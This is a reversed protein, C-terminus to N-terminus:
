PDLFSNHNKQNGSSWVIINRSTPFCYSIKKTTTTPPSSSRLLTATKRKTKTLNKIQMLRKPCDFSQTLYIRQKTRNADSLNNAVQGLSPHSLRIQEQEWRDTCVSLSVGPTFLFRFCLLVQILFVFLCFYNLRDNAPPYFDCKCKMDFSSFKWLAVMVSFLKVM